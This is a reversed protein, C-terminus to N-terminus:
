KNFYQLKLKIKAQLFEWSDIAHRRQMFVVNLFKSFKIGTKNLKGEIELKGTSASVTVNKESFMTNEETTIIDEIIEGNVNWMMDLAFAIDHLASGLAAAFGDLLRWWFTFFSYWKKLTLTLWISYCLSYLTGFILIPGTIILAGILTILGSLLEKM